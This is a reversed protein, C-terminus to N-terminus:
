LLPGLRVVVFLGGLDPALGNQLLGDGVERVRASIKNVQVSLLLWANPVGL